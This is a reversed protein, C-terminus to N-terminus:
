KDEQSTHSDLSEKLKKLRIKWTYMSYIEGFIMSVMNKVVAIPWLFSNAIYM